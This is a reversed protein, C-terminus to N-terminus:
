SRDRGKQALSRLHLIWAWVILRTLLWCASRKAGVLLLTPLSYLGYPYHNGEAKSGVLVIEHDAPRPFVFWVITWLMRHLEIDLRLDLPLYLM